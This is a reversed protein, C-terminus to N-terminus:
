CIFIRKRNDDNDDDIALLNISIENKKKFKDISRTMFPFEVDAWYYEGEFKRLKSVREPNNGLEEWRDAAIVAWKFCELDDNKPNIIAKERSLWDPLPLYSSGRTLNLRHFDVNTGIVEDFVFGSDRLAPNEIQELTHSIMRNVLEDIDNLGYAALMRSNFALDVTESGKGFRIWTTAQTRVAERTSEKCILGALMKRIRAFFTNPDIGQYGAIRYSGYANNFARQLQVPGWNSEFDLEDRLKDRKAILASRIKNQGARRIKKNIGAIKVEICKNRNPPHLKLPAGSIPDKPVRPEVVGVAKESERLKENIKDAERKKSRIKKRKFRANTSKSARVIKDTLADMQSKLNSIEENLSIFRKALKLDRNRRHKLQRKMLPAELEMSRPVLPGKPQEQERELEWTSSM